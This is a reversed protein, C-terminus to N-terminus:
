NKENEGGKLQKIVSDFDVNLGYPNKQLFLRADQEYKGKYYLADDVAQKYIAVILNIYNDKLPDDFYKVRHYHGRAKM